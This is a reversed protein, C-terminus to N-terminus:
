LLFGRCWRRQCLVWGPDNACSGVQTTPVPGLRLRTNLRQARNENGMLKLPPKHWWARANRGQSYAGEQLNLPVSAAARRLQDALNPDTGNIKAILPRLDRLLGITVSYIKLGVSVETGWRPCLGGPGRACSPSLSRPSAECRASGGSGRAARRVFSREFVVRM